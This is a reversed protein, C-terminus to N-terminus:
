LLHRVIEIDLSMLFTEDQLLESIEKDIYIFMTSFLDFIYNERVWRKLEFTALYENELTNAELQKLTRRKSYFNNLNQTIKDYESIIYKLFDKFYKVGQSGEENICQVCLLVIRQYSFEASVILNKRDESSPQNVFTTFSEKLIKMYDNMAERKMGLRFRIYAAGLYHKKQLCIELCEDLPFTHREFAQCL